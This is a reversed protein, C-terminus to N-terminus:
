RRRVDRGEGLVKEPLSRKPAAAGLLDVSFRFPRRRQLGIVFEATFVEGPSLIGDAGVDPSLRAGVGGPAGDANLLFNGGSLEAVEFVPDGIPTSSTNTFTAKVSFTGAPGGPVPTADFATVLPALAVLENVVGSCKAVFIELTHDPNGGTLDSSSHFAIRTGDANISPGGSDGTAANTIQTLTNTTTDFRFIEGTGDANGGTLDNHSSFAIRTGNSDISPEGRDSAGPSSTIQTFAGTTVSAM